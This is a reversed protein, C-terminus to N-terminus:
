ACLHSTMADRVQVAKAHQHLQEYVPVDAQRWRGQALEASHGNIAPQFSHAQAVGARVHVDPLLYKRPVGRQQSVVAHMLQAFEDMDVDAAAHATSAAGDDADCMSTETTSAHAHVLAACRAKMDQLVAPTVPALCLGAADCRLLAAGEVDARIEASLNSFRPSGGLVVDLLNVVGASRANLFEFVQQFRREKLRSLIAESQPTVRPPAAEARVAATVRATNARRKANSERSLAYLYEGVPLDATCRQYSRSTRNIQPQFLPRGTAADVLLRQKAM